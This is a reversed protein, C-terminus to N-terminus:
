GGAPRYGFLVGLGWVAGSLILGFPFSQIGAGPDGTAAGVIVGTIVSVALLYIAIAKSVSPTRVSEQQALAIQREEEAETLPKESLWSLLGCVTLFVGISLAAVLLVQENREAIHSRAAVVTAAILVLVGIMLSVRGLARADIM